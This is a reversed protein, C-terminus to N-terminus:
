YIFNIESVMIDVGLDRQDSTGMLDCPRWTYPIKIHIELVAEGQSTSDTEFRCIGSSAFINERLRESGNISIIIQYNQSDIFVEQPICYPMEIAKVNEAVSLKMISEVASTWAHRVGNVVEEEHFGRILEYSQYNLIGLNDKQAALCYEAPHNAVFQMGLRLPNYLKESTAPSIFLEEALDQRVFFANCGRINTGVLRYCKERGLKELTKLSAGHWDNGRWIHTPNYAQKWELDPPFKANYEIIVVRPNIVDIEEWIYIDNGDIDISLIDIESYGGGRMKALLKM